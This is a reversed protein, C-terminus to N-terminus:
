LAISSRKSLLVSGEYNNAIEDVSYEVHRSLEDHRCLAISEVSVDVEPAARGLALRLRDVRFAVVLVENLDHLVSAIKSAGMVGVANPAGCLDKPQGLEPQPLPAVVVVAGAMTYTTAYSRDRMRTARELRYVSGGNRDVRVWIGSASENVDIPAVKEEVLNTAADGVVLHNSTLAVGVLVGEPHKDGVGGCGPTSM